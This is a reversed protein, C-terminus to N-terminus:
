AHLSRKLTKIRGRLEGDDCNLKWLKLCVEPLSSDKVWIMVPGERKRPLLPPPLCAFLVKMCCRRGKPISTLSADTKGTSHMSQIMLTQRPTVALRSNHESRECVDFARSTWWEAAVHCKCGSTHESTRRQKQHLASVGVCVSCSCVSVFISARTHSSLLSASGYNM